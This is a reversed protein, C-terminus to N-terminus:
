GSVWPCFVPVPWLAYSGSVSHRRFSVWSILWFIVRFNDRCTKQIWAGAPHEPSAPHDRPFSSPTSRSIRGAFVARGREGCFSATLGAWALGGSLRCRGQLLLRFVTTGVRRFEAEIFSWEFDQQWFFWFIIIKDPAPSHIFCKNPGLNLSKWTQRLYLSSTTGSYHVIRSPM